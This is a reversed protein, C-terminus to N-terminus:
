TKNRRLALLAIGALTALAMSAPEPVTPEEWVTVTIPLGPTLVTPGNFVLEKHIWMDILGLSPSTSTIPDFNIESGDPSVDGPVTEGTNHIILSGGPGWGFPQNFSAGHIVEHWDTPVLGTPGPDVTIHEWIPFVQGPVITIGGPIVFSKEWPPLSPDIFITADLDFMWVGPETPSEVAEVVTPATGVGGVGSPIGGAVSPLALSAAILMAMPAVWCKLQEIM